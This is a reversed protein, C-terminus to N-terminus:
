GGLYRSAIRDFRDCVYHYIQMDEKALESLRREGDDSLRAGDPRTANLMTTIEGEGIGVASLVRSYQVLRETPGVLFYEGDVRKKAMEFDDLQCLFECQRAILRWEQLEVLRSLAQDPTLRALEHHLYHDPNSQIFRVVSNFRAVPHRVLGLYVAPRPFKEHVGYVVHGALFRYRMLEPSRLRLTLFDLFEDTGEILSEEQEFFNTLHEILTTGGTRPCHTFIVIASNPHSTLGM